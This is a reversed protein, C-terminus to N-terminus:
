GHIRKSKGSTRQSTCTHICRCDPNSVVCPRRIEAIHTTIRQLLDLESYSITTSVPLTGKRVSGPRSSDNTYIAYLKQSMASSLRKRQVNLRKETSPIRHAPSAITSKPSAKELLATSHIMSQTTLYWLPPRQKSPSKQSLGKGQRTM